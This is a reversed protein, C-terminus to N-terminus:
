VSPSLQSLQLPTLVKTDRHLVAQVFKDTHEVMNKMQGPELSAATAFKHIYQDVDKGRWSKDYARYDHKLNAWYLEVPMAESWYPASWDISFGHRKAIQEMRVPSWVSKAATKLTELPFFDGTEPDTLDEESEIEPSNQVLFQVCAAKSVTKNPDFDSKAIKRKHYSANDLHFVVNSFTRPRKKNVSVARGFHGDEVFDCLEDFYEEFRKGIMQGDAKINWINLCEKFTCVVRTFYKEQSKRKKRPPEGPTPLKYVLQEWDSLDEFSNVQKWYALMMQAIGWKESKKNKLKDWSNDSGCFWSFRGCEQRWLGTEDGFFDVTNQRKGLVGDKVAAMRRGCYSHLWSLVYPKSRYSKLNFKIQGYRFGLRLLHYRLAENIDKYQDIGKKFVEIEAKDEKGNKWQKKNGKAMKADHEEQEAVVARLLKDVTLTEGSKKAVMFRANLTKFLTPYKSRQEAVTCPKPGPSMPAPMPNGEDDSGGNSGTDDNDVKNYQKMYRAVTKPNINFLKAIVCRAPAQKPWNDGKIMMKEDKMVIKLRKVATCVALKFGEDGAYGRGLLGSM